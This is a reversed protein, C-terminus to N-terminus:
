PAPRIKFIRTYNATSIGERAGFYFENIGSPGTPLVFGFQGFGFGTAYSPDIDEGDPVLNSVQSVVGTTDLRFVKRFLGQTLASFYFAEDMGSQQIVGLGMPTDHANQHNAIDAIATIALSAPNLKCLKSKSYANQCNGMLQGQFVMPVGDGYSFPAFYPGRTLTNSTDLVDLQMSTNGQWALGTYLKNNYIVRPGSALNVMQTVANSPAIKKVPSPYVTCAADACPGRYWISGNFAVMGADINLDPEDPGTLNFDAVQVVNDMTDTYHLKFRPTGAGNLQLFYVRTGDESAALQKSYNAFTVLDNTQTQNIQKITAGNYKFLRTSSSSSTSRAVFYLCSNAVVMGPKNFDDNGAGTIDAVQSYAGASSIKFLKTKGGTNYGVFYYDGGYMAGAHMMLVDNGAARNLTVRDIYYKTVPLTNSSDLFGDNIKVINTGGAVSTVAAKVENVTIPFNPVACAISSFAGLTTCANTNASSITVAFPSTDTWNQWAPPTNTVYASSGSPTVTTSGIAGLSSTNAAVGTGSFSTIVSATNAASGTATSLYSLSLPRSSALTPSTTTIGVLNSNQTLALAAATATLRYSGNDIILLGKGAFNAVGAVANMTATGSLTGTGSITTLTLTISTTAAAGTVVPNGQSDVVSVVPQTPFANMPSTTSSPQTTFALGVPTGANVMITPSLSTVASGGITAHIATPNGAVTGTFVSTYSGNLGDATAAFTGDSTGGTRSFVVVLGGAALQNGNADKATVTVTSTAGALISSSSVTIESQALSVAGPTVTVTPATTTIPFGSVAAYITTASGAKVGTFTASYTGDNNDITPSFTGTSTGGVTYFTVVAGGYTLNTGSASKGQFTLTRTAGSVVTAGSLTLTSQNLAPRPSLVQVSFVRSASLVGDTVSVKFEHTTGATAFPPTWNLRGLATDFTAFAGGHDVLMSCPLASPSVIGDNMTDYFCTYSLSRAGLYVTAAAQEPMPSEASVSLNAFAQLDLQTLVPAPSPAATVTSVTEKEPAKVGLFGGIDGDPIGCASFFTVAAITMLVIRPKLGIATL